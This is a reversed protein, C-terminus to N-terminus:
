MHEGGAKVGFALAQQRFMHTLGPNFGGKLLQLFATGLDVFLCFLSGGFFRRGLRHSV